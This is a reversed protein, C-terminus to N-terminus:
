DRAAGARAEIQRIARNAANAIRRDGDRLLPQLAPLDDRTGVQGLARLMRETGRPGARRLYPHLDATKALAHLYSEAQEGHRLSDLQNVVELLFDVRGLRYLAFAQALRVSENKETLRDNSIRDAQAVAGCRGLGEAAFRRRTASPHALNETFVSESASDGIRALAILLQTQQSEDRGPRAARYRAMLPTVAERTRLRGVTEIARQRINADGDDLYPLVHLGYESRGFKALVRFIDDRLAPDGLAEVMASVMTEGRLVGLARVASRRNELSADDRMTDAIAQLVEPAVVTGVPVMTPEDTELFPNFRDFGRRRAFVFEIDEEIYFLLLARLVARRVDAEPERLAQMLPPLTTPDKIKGLALAAEARLRS